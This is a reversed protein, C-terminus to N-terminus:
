LGSNFRRMTRSQPGKVQRPSSDAMVQTWQGSVPSVQRRGIYGGSALKFPADIAAIVPYTYPAKGNPDFWSPLAIATIPVDPFDPLTFSFRDDECCDANEKAYDYVSGDSETVRVTLNCEPDGITESIEHTFTVSPKGNYRITDGAFVKIVPLGEATVDHYGLADAQDSNDLIACQWAGVPIPQGGKVFVITAYGWIPGFVRDIFAQTAECWGNVTADDVESCERMVAITPINGTM